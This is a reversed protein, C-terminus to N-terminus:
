SSYEGFLEHCQTISLCRLMLVCSKALEWTVKAVSDARNIFQLCVHEWVDVLIVSSMPSETFPSDQSRFIIADM